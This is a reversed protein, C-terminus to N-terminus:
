EETNYNIQYYGSISITSTQINEGDNYDNDKSITPLGIRKFYGIHNENNIPIITKKLLIGMIKNAIRSNIKREEDEKTKIFINVTIGEFLCNQRPRWSMEFKGYSFKCLAIPMLCIEEIEEVDYYNPMKVKIIDNITNSYHDVIQVSEITDDITCIYKNKLNINYDDIIRTGDNSRIQLEVISQNNDSPEKSLFKAKMRTNDTLIMKDKYYVISDQEIFPKLYNYVALFGLDM